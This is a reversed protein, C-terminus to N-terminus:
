PVGPLSWREGTSSDILAARDAVAELPLIEYVAAALVALSERRVRPAVSCHPVWYGPRYHRHLEAGSAQSTAVVREQRELVSATVGPVLWARSRRFLGLADFHLPVAGGDPLAAVAAHVASVEFERLVAYSLHPVHRGHTHSLLTPVGADELREWLHRLARDTRADFLLCVALAVACM